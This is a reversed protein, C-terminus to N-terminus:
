LDIFLVLDLYNCDATDNDTFGFIKFTKAFKCNILEVPKAFIHHLCTARM